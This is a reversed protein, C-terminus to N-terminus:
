VQISKGVDRYDAEFSNVMDECEDELFFNPVWTDNDENSNKYRILYEIREGKGYKRIRRKIIKEIEDVLPKYNNTNEKRKIVKFPGSYKPLLKFQDQAVINKITNLFCRKVLVLSNEEIELEKRNM